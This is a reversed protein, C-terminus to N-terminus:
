EGAKPTATGPFADGTAVHMTGSFVAIALKMGLTFVMLGLAGIGFSIKWEIANPVYEVIEHLTSPVFAPVVLGMGKEIWLGILSLVCAIDVLWLHNRRDNAILIIASIINFAIATWIWPM